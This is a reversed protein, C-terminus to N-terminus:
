IHITAWRVPKNILICIQKCTHPLTHTSSVNCPLMCHLWSSSSPNILWDRETLSAILHESSDVPWEAHRTRRKKSREYVGEWARVMGGKEKERKFLKWAEGRKECEQCILALSSILWPLLCLAKRWDMQGNQSGLRASGSNCLPTPAHTHTHQPTHSPAALQCLCLCFLCHMLPRVKM